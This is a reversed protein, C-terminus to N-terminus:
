IVMGDRFAVAARLRDFACVVGCTRHRGNFLKFYCCLGFAFLELSMTCPAGVPEKMTKHLIVQASIARIAFSASARSKFDRTRLLVHRNSETEPCWAICSM